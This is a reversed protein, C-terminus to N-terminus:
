EFADRSFVKGSENFQVSGGSAAAAVPIGLAARGAAVDKLFAIAAAYADGVQDTARNGHLFYRAIDAARRVIIDPAPSLPVAYRPAVRANIEHDADTLAKGVVTVDIAGTAPKARDTLEILEREGFRDILDQQTAYTM